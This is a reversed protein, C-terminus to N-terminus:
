IKDDSSIVTEDLTRETKDIIFYFRWFFRVCEYTFEKDSFYTYKRLIPSGNDDFLKMYVIKGIKVINESNM